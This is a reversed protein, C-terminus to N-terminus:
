STPNGGDIVLALLREEETTHAITAAIARATREPVATCTATAPMILAACVVIHRASKRM